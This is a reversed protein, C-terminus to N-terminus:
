AIVRGALRLLAIERLQDAVIRDETDPDNVLRTELAALIEENSRGAARILFVRGFRQEYARNGAELRAAAEESPQLGAQESRSLTAEASSGAAPRGIRPHHALAGEVEEATLPDAARRAAAELDDLGRYPRGDAVEALWRDVDLCPRLVAMAGERDLDNFEELRLNRGSGTSHRPSADALEARTEQQSM